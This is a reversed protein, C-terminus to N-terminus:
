CAASAPRPAISNAAGSAPSRRTTAASKTRTSASSPKDDTVRQPEVKRIREDVGQQLDTQKRQLEAVNRALEEM